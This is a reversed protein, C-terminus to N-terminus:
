LSINVGFSYTAYFPYQWSGLEPDIGDPLKSWTYINEASFFVKGGTLKVMKLLSTPVTYSLTVNKLRIYAANSLYKTQTRYNSNKNENENYIRPYFANPNVATYDGKAKDVPKWYDLQNAYVSGYHVTPGFMLDGGIWRDRKGVGQIMVSLNLNKWGVNANAGYQYRPTTNGIIKRDGPKSVINEGVNIVGDNNLDKFKIDGPKPKFGSLTVVGPKLTFNTFETFDDATYYGDTVYGWIEGPGMGVRYNENTSPNYFLGAPNDYKTIVAKSDFLNFGFGYQWDGVKDRWQMTIEWGRNRLDAANQLPAPAGVVSPLEMGSALMGKTDRQYWDFNATLRNNFVSIDTGLNISQAYEWTYNPRVLGPPYFTTPRVGDVIWGALYSQMSAIYDYENVGAQNGLRGWSARLKLEQLWNESWKMFGERAVQWGLSVSPFFGFRENKPFKSSGDYRGNVELLYKDAYSYNFRYFGSRIAYQFYTDTAKTLGTAGSFSPKEPNSIDERNAALREYNRAEQNYGGMVKFSHNDGIKLNYTAYANISELMTSTKTNYYTPTKVMRTNGQEMMIMTADNTFRKYDYFKQESTYEIIGELGKLPRITTRSFIRTNRTEDKSPTTLRLYNEPSNTPYTFGSLDNSKPMFGTPFFPPPTTSYVSGNEVYSTKATSVSLDVSQSLWDTIDGNVYSTLNTRNYTDKNTKLPGNQDTYGMSMRYTIKEGGGNASLKHTQRFGYKDLIANTPNNNTLYYYASEGEPIFRGNEFYSGPYKAKFGNPDANYEKVFGLWKQLNQDQAYYKGDNDWDIYTELVQEVSAAKPSNVSKQFDINTSYNMVLKSNKKAKKTTILVVGFAARAGYIAASAADKLVSVTEIDDPNVLNISCPVNDVLVLPEGGANISTMGRIQFSQSAGPSTSGSVTVGAISGQLASVANVVPRDGLVKDMQVQQVAGTLNSKKQTGYGVVVVEEIQKRDEKLIIQLDTNDTVVVTQAIYGISSITLTSGSKVTLAFQGNVDSGTGSTTGKVFISAGIVPNGKEDVIKGKVPRPLTSQTSAKKEPSKKSIVITKGDIACNVDQGDFIIRVIDKVDQNNAVFDVKKNMDIDSSKMSFSYGHNKQLTEIARKVTTNKLNISINQAFAGSIAIFMGLQLAIFFKYARGYPQKFRELIKKM